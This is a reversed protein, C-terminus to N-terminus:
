NGGREEEEEKAETDDLNEVVFKVFPRLEPSFIIIKVYRVM